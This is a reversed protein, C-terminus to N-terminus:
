DDNMSGNWIEIAEERSVRHIFVGEQLPCKGIMTKHWFGFMDFEESKTMHVVEGCFPCPRLRDPNKM